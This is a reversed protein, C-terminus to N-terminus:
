APGAWIIPDASIVPDASTPDAWIVLGALQEESSDQAGDSATQKSCARKARELCCVRDRGWLATEDLLLEPILLSM